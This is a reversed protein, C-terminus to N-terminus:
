FQNPDLSAAWNGSHGYIVYVSGAGSGGGQAGDNPSAGPASVAIDPYGDGNLDGTAVATGLLDGSSVGPLSFGTTGGTLYSPTIVGSNPFTGSSGFIVYAEGANSNASSVGVIADGFGDKNVDGLALATPSSVTFIFGNTGNIELPPTSSAPWTGSSGQNFYAAVGDGTNPWNMLAAFDLKGDGNLDASAAAGTFAVNGWNCGFFSGNTGNLTSIDFSGSNLLSSNGYIVWWSGPGGGGGYCPSNYQYILLDDKGDGNFDFAATGVGFNGGVPGGGSNIWVGTSTSLTGTSTFLPTGTDLLAPWSYGSPHGWVIYAGEGSTAGILIDKTGDGNFDGTAVSAGIQQEFVNGWVVFGAGSNTNNIPVNDVRVMIKAPDSYRAYAYFSITYTGAALTVAQSAYGGPDLLAVQSGEPATGNNLGTNNGALGSGYDFTWPSGSPPPRDVANGAGVSPTEFGPDSPQDASGNIVVDDIFVYDSSDSSMLQITHSGATVTFSGTTYTAYGSGSIAISPLLSNLDLSSPPSATGFITFVLGSEWQDGSAGSDGIILDDMGDGNIDGHAFSPTAYCDENIIQMVKPYTATTYSGSSYATKQGFLITTCGAVIDMAGDGNFDMTMFPGSVNDVYFGTSGNGGSITSVNLPDPWSYSSSQGFIVYIGNNGTSSNYGSLILDPKGDGNVDAFGVVNLNASANAGDIRFGPKCPVGAPVYRDYDNQMQWRERFRVQDDFVNKADTPDETWDHQVYNATYTQNNGNQDMHANTIEDANDSGANYRTGAKTYGGHGDPGYSIVAYISSQTRYGGGANKITIGGCSPSVGYTIFSNTATMPTWVAYGFKRGWGDYMFEDPLGLTKVPLAGEAVTGSLINSNNTNSASWNAKIAGTSYCDGATSAEYGFTAANAPTDAITADAPCPLRNYALRYAALVAEIENLKNNTNARRASEIMSDGMSVTMAVVSAIIAIVISLEILTFAAQGVSRARNKSAQKNRDAHKM